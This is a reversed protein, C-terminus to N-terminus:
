DGRKDPSKKVLPPEGIDNVEAHIPGESDRYNLDM